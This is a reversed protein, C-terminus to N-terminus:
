SLFDRHAGVEESALDDQDARSSSPEAVSDGSRSCGIPRGSDHDRPSVSCRTFGEGSLQGAASGVGTEVSNIKGIRKRSGPAHAGGHGAVAPSQTTLEAPMVVHPVKSSVV